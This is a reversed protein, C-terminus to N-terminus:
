ATDRRLGGLDDVGWTYIKNKYILAAVYIGGAALHVIEVTDVRLYANVRPRTVEIADGGTGLGLQGDTGDGCVYM